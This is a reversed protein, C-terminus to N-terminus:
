RWKNFVKMVSEHEELEDNDAEKIGEEIEEQEEKSLNLFWDDEKKNSAILKELQTLLKEDVNELQQIFHYKRSALDM